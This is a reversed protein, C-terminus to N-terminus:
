IGQTNREANHRRRALEKAYSSAIFSIERIKDPDEQDRNNLLSKLENFRVFGAEIESANLGDM